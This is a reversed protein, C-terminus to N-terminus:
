EAVSRKSTMVEKIAGLGRAIFFINALVLWEAIWPAFSSFGSLRIRRSMFALIVSLYIFVGFVFGVYLGSFLSVITILVAFVYAFTLMVVRDGWLGHARIQTSAHASIKQYFETLRSANGLHIVGLEGKACVKFGMERVRRCIEDDEASYLSTNFGGTKVWVDRRFAMNGGPLSRVYGSFRNVLPSWAKEVWTGHPDSVYNGGVVGVDANEDLYSIVKCAWDKPVVCDSDIFAIVDFKAFVAGDNRVGGANCANSKYISTAFEQAISVSRDESGNDVVVVEFLEKELNQGMLSELCQYLYKESNKVPIVFSIGRM